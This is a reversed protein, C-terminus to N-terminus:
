GKKRPGFGAEAYRGGVVASVVATQVSALARASLAVVEAKTPMLVNVRHLFWIRGAKYSNKTNGPVVTRETRMRRRGKKDNYWIEKSFWVLKGNPANKGRGVSSGIFEFIVKDGSLRSEAGKWMGGSVVYSGLPKGVKRHFSLESRYTRHAMGTAAQYQKSIFVRSKRGYGKFVDGEGLQQKTIVRTRIDNLLQGAYLALPILQQRSLERSSQGKTLRTLVDGVEFAIIGRRGLREVRQQRASM